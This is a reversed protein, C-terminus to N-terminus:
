SRSAVVYTFADDGYLVFVKNTIAFHTARSLARAILDASFKAASKELETNIPLKEDLSGLNFKAQVSLAKSAGEMTMVAEETGALITARALVSALGVPLEIEEGADRLLDNIVESINQKPYELNNSIIQVDGGDVYLCTGTVLEAGPEILDCVAEVFGWPLLLPKAVKPKEDITVCAASKSDTGIFEMQAKQPIVHVGLHIASEPKAKAVSVQQLAALVAETLKLTLGDAQDWKILEDSHRVMLPIKSKGLQLTAMDDALELSVQKLTSTQLLGILSKGPIGISKFESDLKCRIGLEGNYAYVHKGDFWFCEYGPISASNALAQSAKALTKLLDERDFTM